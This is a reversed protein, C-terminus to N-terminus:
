KGIKLNDFQPCDVYQTTEFQDISITRNTDPWNKSTPADDTLPRVVFLLYGVVRISM